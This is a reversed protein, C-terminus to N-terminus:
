SVLMNRLRCVRLRYCTGGDFSELVSVHEEMLLSQSVLM